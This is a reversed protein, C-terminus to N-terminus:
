DLTVWPKGPGFKGPLKAALAIAQEKSQMGTIRVRYHQRGKVVVPLVDAAYGADQLRKLVAQAERQDTPSYINVKWSKAAPKASAVATVPKGAPPAPKEIKPQIESLLTAPKVGEAGFCTNEDVLSLVKSGRLVLARGSLLCAEPDRQLIALVSGQRLSVQMDGLVVFFGTGAPERDNVFRALGSHLRVRLTLEDKTTATGPVVGFMPNAASIRSSELDLVRLRTQAGLRVSAGDPLRLVARADEGTQVVDGTRLETGTALASRAGERELFVPM